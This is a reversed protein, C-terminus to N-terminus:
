PYQSPPEQVEKNSGVTQSSPALGALKKYMDFVKKIDQM